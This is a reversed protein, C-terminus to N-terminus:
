AMLWRKSVRRQRAASSAAGVIGEPFFAVHVAEALGADQAIQLSSLNGALEVQPLVSRRSHGFRMRHPAAPSDVWSTLVGEATSYYRGGLSHPLNNLARLMPTLNPQPGPQGNKLGADVRYFYIRREATPIAQKQVM